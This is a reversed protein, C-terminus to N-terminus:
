QRCTCHDPNLFAADSRRDALCLLLSIVVHHSPYLEFAPLTQVLFREGARTADVCLDDRRGSTDDIVNPITAVYSYTLVRRVEVLDIQLIEDDGFVLDLHSDSLAVILKQIRDCSSRACNLIEM